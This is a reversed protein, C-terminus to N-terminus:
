DPDGINSFVYKSPLGVTLNLISDPPVLFVPPGLNNTGALLAQMYASLPPLPHIEYDFSSVTTYIGDSIEYSV